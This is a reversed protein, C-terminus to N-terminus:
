HSRKPNTKPENKYDLLQNYLVYHSRKVTKLGIALLGSQTDRQFRTLIVSEWAGIERAAFSSEAM